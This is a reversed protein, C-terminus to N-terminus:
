FYEDYGKAWSCVTDAYAECHTNWYKSSPGGCYYVKAAYHEGSKKDAGAAKLKLAMGVIGDELDWPDAPKHGTVSSIKSAWGAWTSPMFQAVGMAGGIGYSLPCSVKMKKYDYGLDDCIGKFIKENSSGMKSNKYTCGGTFRGLDTEKDLMAFLFEKRVGTKKDAYKVADIVDDMNYSKGLFKSLTSRLKNLKAQLQGITAKTEVIEGVIQNKEVYKDSLLDEHEEKKQALEEKAEKLEEKNEKIEDLVALVKEKISIMSDFNSSFNSLLDGATAFKITPDDYTEFSMEQIYSRLIKKNLDIRQNLNNIETEKRTIEKKTKDILGATINIEKETVNLNAQSQQLNEQEKDLKEQVNNIDKRIDTTDDAYIISPLLWIYIGLIFIGLLLIAKKRKKFIRRMGPPM